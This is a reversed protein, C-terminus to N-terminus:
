KPAQAPRGVPKKTKKLMAPPAAKIAKPKRKEPAPVESKVEVPTLKAVPPIVVDPVAVSVPKALTALYTPGSTRTISLVRSEARLLWAGLVMEKMMKAPGGGTWMHEKKMHVFEQILRQVSGRGGRDLPQGEPTFGQVISHAFSHVTQWDENKILLLLGAVVGSPLQKPKLYLKDLHLLAAHYAKTAMVINRLGSAEKIAHIPPNRMYESNFKGLSHEERLVGYYRDTETEHAARSDFHYYYDVVDQLIECHITILNIRAPASGLGNIWGTIRNHGDLHFLQTGLKGIHFTAHTPQPTKLHKPFRLPRQVPSMQIDMGLFRQISMQRSETNPLGVAIKLNNLPKKAHWIFDTM